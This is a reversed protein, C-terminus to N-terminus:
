DRFNGFQLDLGSYNSKLHAMVEQLDDRKKGTVRLQDGQIQSSVKFKAASISKNMSKLDESTLAGKIKVVQRLSMGTAKEPDKFELLGLNIGRKAFRQRVIEQVAALKMEDDAAIKVEEKAQDLEVTAKSGRFDYRGQIERTTQDVANTVEHWDVKLYADFSPM